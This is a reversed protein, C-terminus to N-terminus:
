FVSTYVCAELFKHSSLPIEFRNNQFQLLFCQRNMDYVLCLGVHMQWVIM